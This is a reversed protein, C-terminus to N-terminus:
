RNRKESFVSRFMKEYEPSLRGENHLKRLMMARQVMQLRREIAFGGLFVYGKQDGVEMEYLIKDDPGVPFDFFGDNFYDKYFGVWVTKPLDLEAIGNFTKIGESSSFHAYVMVDLPNNVFGIEHFGLAQAMLYSSGVLFDSFEEDIKKALKIQLKLENRYELSGEFENQSVDSSNGYLLGHSCFFSFLVIVALLVKLLAKNRIFPFFTVAIAAILFPAILLKYRHIMVLFNSYLGFWAATMAFMLFVIFHEKLFLRFIRPEQRHRRFWFVAEILFVVATVCFIKLILLGEINQLGILPKTVNNTNAQAGYAHIRFAAMLGAFALIGVGCLATKKRSAKEPGILLLVCCGVFVTACTTLGTAKVLLAAGAMVVSVGVRERILFYVALISFFLSAMEMNINEVMAQFLPLSVLFVAILVATERDFLENLIKRFTVAIVSGMLFVLSHITVLFVKATPIILILLALFSPYLSEPYQKFGGVALGKQKFFFDFLDFHHRVIWIVDTFIGGLADGYPPYFIVEPRTLFLYVFVALGFAWGKAEKLFRWCFLLLAAGAALSSLPGLLRNDAVGLYFDLSRHDSTGLIANLLEYSNLTYLYEVLEPGQYKILFFLFSLTFFASWFLVDKIKLLRVSPLAKLFPSPM